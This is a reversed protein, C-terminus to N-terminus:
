TTSTSRGGDESEVRTEEVHGVNHTLSAEQLEELVKIRGHRRQERPGPAPLQGGM